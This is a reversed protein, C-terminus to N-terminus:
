SVVGKQKLSNWAYSVTRASVGLEQGIKVQTIRKDKFKMAMVNAELATLTVSNNEVVEEEEEEFLLFLFACWSYVLSFLFLFHM